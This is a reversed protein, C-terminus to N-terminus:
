FVYQVVVPCGFEICTHSCKKGESYSYYTKIDYAYMEALKALCDELTLKGENYLSVIRAVKSPFGFKSTTSFM